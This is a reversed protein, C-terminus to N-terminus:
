KKKSPLACTQSVAELRKVSAVTLTQTKEDLAGTIEVRYGVDDIARDRDAVVYLAKAQESIFVARAGDRLCKKACEVGNPSINGSKVRPTACGEDSFWGTWTVTEPGHPAPLIASSLVFALGITTIRM